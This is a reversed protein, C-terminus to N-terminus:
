WNWADRLFVKKNLADLTILMIQNYKIIASMVKPRKWKFKFRVGESDHGIEKDIDRCLEAAGHLSDLAVVLM